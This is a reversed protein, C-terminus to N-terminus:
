CGALLYQAGILLTISAFGFQADDDVFCGLLSHGFQVNGTHDNLRNPGTREGVQLSKFGPQDNKADILLRRTCLFLVFGDDTLQLGAVVDYKFDHIRAAGAVSDIVDASGQLRRIREHRSRISFDAGSLKYSYKQEEFKTKTPASGYPEISDRSPKGPLDTTSPIWRAKM